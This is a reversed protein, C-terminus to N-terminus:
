GATLEHFGLPDALQFAAIAHAIHRPAGGDNRRNRLWRKARSVATRLHRGEFTIRQEVVEQKQVNRGNIKTKVLVYKLGTPYPIGARAAEDRMEKTIPMAVNRRFTDDIITVSTKM